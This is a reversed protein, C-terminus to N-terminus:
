LFKKHDDLRKIIQQGSYYTNPFAEDHLQVMDVYYEPTLEEIFTSEFENSNNCRFILIKEDSYKKFSLSSSLQCVRTNKVNPFMEMSDIKKPLIDTMKKWMEYVIDWKERLIFPGWIEASNDDLDADFGLVGVLKNGEYAVVFSDTYKIDSIDNIMYKAIENKDKGCYGIHSEESANMQSIFDSVLGLDEKDIMRIELM